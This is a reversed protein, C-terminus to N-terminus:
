VLISKNFQNLVLCCNRVPAWSSSLSVRLYSNECKSMKDGLPEYEHGVKLLVVKLLVGGWGGDEGGQKDEVNNPNLITSFTKQLKCHLWLKHYSNHSWFRRKPWSIAVCCTWATAASTTTL